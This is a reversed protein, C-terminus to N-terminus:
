LCYSQTKSSSVVVFSALIDSSLGITLKSVFIHNLFLSSRDSTNYYLLTIVGGLKM